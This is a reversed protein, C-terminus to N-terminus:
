KAGKFYKKDMAGGGFGRGDFRINIRSGFWGV